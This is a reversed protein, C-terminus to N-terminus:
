REAAPQLSEGCYPCLRWDLQVAQGCNPCTQVSPPAPPPVAGPGSVGRALWVTGLILLILLGLPLAMATLMLLWSLVGYRLAWGGMMGPGMMGWGGFLFPLFAIGLVFVVLVVAAFVVVQTWNIQNM